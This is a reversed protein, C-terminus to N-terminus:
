SYSYIPRSTKEVFSVNKKFFFKLASSDKLPYEGAGDFALAQPM